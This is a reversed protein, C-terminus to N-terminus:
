VQALKVSDSNYYRLNDAYVVAVSLVLKAYIQSEWPHRFDSFISQRFTFLFLQLMFWMLTSPFLYISYTDAPAAKLRLATPSTLFICLITAHDEVCVITTKRIGLDCNCPLSTSQLSGRMSCKLAELIYETLQLRLNLAIM